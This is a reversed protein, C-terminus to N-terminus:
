CGSSFRLDEAKAFITSFHYVIDVIDMCLFKSNFFTFIVIVYKLDLRHLECTCKLYSFGCACSCLNYVQPVLETETLLTFAYINCQYLASKFSSWCHLKSKTLSTIFRGCKTAVCYMTRSFDPKYPLVRCHVKM